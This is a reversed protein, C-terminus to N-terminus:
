PELAGHLEARIVSADVVAGVQCIQRVRYIQQALDSGVLEGITYSVRFGQVKVRLCLWTADFSELLSAM